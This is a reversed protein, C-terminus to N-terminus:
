LDIIKDAERIGSLYAGHVTGRYERETHEGAFFVKNNIENALTDFDASTSGNTPYSYAGFSNINQGWKTRLFNTPNPISNGYISKLNLMIENIIQSDTMSETVTAYDGFAFTMLGNSPTFKKINLYYNFKGKIDPIYGIYQLNTDWFPTSWVLLFKNVNGINTNAIANIKNTPLTPTFSISNNKLVGLPVSVIVYDAEINNGITTIAVKTNSYNVNIVRTNLRIDLGQALFDTVKDFGNTIILDEGNFEEDDDFFKSSLKSIDGGTNFELYASLMYKWLKSNAQTPYLSNFVTQFSEIQTGANRVANLANNFQNEANTLFSDSYAAGSTDFVEVSDDSTLFTNAGSQSALSTIPNGSPGHIWSAGEDFAVGLSRDTRMRGGVKEQAELVIVTFGKEKLKKAAALGSIGGGIVVVTKGNPNINEDDQGCSALLTPTLLFLPVGTLSDKIFKRRKM